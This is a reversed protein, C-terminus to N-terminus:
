IFLYIDKLTQVRYVLFNKSKKTLLVRISPALSIAELTPACNQMSSGRSQNRADM